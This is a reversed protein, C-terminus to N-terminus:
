SFFITYDPSEEQYFSRFAGMSNEPPVTKERNQRFGLFNLSYLDLERYVDSDATRVAM